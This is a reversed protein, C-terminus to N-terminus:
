NIITTLTSELTMVSNSAEGLGSSKPSAPTMEFHGYGVFGGDISGNVSAPARSGASFDFLEFDRLTLTQTPCTYLYNDIPNTDVLMHVLYNVGYDINNQNLSIEYPIGLGQTLLDLQNLTADDDFFIATSSSPFNSDINRCFASDVPFLDEPRTPVKRLDYYLGSQGFANSQINGLLSLENTQLQEITFDHTLSPLTTNLVYSVTLEDSENGSLDTAFAKICYNGDGSAGINIKQTFSVGSDHPDCCAGGFQICYTIQGSESSSLIVDFLSGYTGSKKDASLEPAENDINTSDPQSSTSTTTSATKTEDESTQSSNSTDLVGVDDGTAATSTGDTVSANDSPSNGLLSAKSNNNSNSSNNTTSSKELALSSEGSLFAKEQPQNEAFQETEELNPKINNQDRIINQENKNEIKKQRKMQKIKTSAIERSNKQEQIEKENKDITPVEPRLSIFLFAVVTAIGIPTSFSKLLDRM